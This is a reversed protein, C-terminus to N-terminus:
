RSSRRRPRPGCRARSCSRPRRCRSGAESNNSRCCAICASSASSSPAPSASSASSARRSVSRPSYALTAAFSPSARVAAAFEAFRGSLGVNVSGRLHGAGYLQDDRVDLLLAGARQRRVAEDAGVVPVEAASDFSRHGARNLADAATPANLRSAEDHTLTEVTLPKKAM